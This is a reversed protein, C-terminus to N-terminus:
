RTKYTYKRISACEPYKDSAGWDIHYHCNERGGLFYVVTHNVETKWVTMFSDSTDDPMHSSKIDVDITM